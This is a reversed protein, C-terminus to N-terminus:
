RLGVSILRNSLPRHDNENFAVGKYGPDTSATRFYPSKTDGCWRHCRKYCHTYGSVFFGSLLLNDCILLQYSHYTYNSAGLGDPLVGDWLGYAGGHNYRYNDAATIPTQSRRTFYAKRGTEHDIFM